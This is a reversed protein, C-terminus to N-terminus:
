NTNRSSAFHFNAILFLYSLTNYGVFNPYSKYLNKVLLAINQHRYILQFLQETNFQAHFLKSKGLFIQSLATNFFILYQTWVM